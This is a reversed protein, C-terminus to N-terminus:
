LFYSILHCIVSGLGGGGTVAYRREELLPISLWHRLGLHCVFLFHATFALKQNKEFAQNKEGLFVASLIVGFIPNTFGFVAVKGVPNYKLLIGWLTYAVASIMAMYILLAISAFTFGSIKGGTAIGVVVLIIGGLFFQYGSLVVPNEDKSYKKIMGSSLAYAAASLLIAGEGSLKISMDFGGNALNIVVVGLFGVVCGLVKLVTMKKKKKIFVAFLISIFVNAANIISSKVGSTNALGIYFFVYQLVTQVMSLKFVSFLSEKKPVLIKKSLISGFLITLIGALTFRIGAFLHSGVAGSPINFMQYGIKICPFASGWLLCCIIALGCVVPTKTLLKKNMINGEEFVVVM